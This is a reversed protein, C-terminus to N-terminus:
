ILSVEPHQGTATLTEKTFSAYASAFPRELAAVLLALLENLGRVTVLRIPDTPSIHVTYMMHFYTSNTVMNSLAEVTTCLFKNFIVVGGLYSCDIVKTLM